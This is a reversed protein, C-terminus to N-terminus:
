LIQFSSITNSKLKNVLLSFLPHIIQKLRTSYMRKSLVVHAWHGFFKRQDLNLTVYTSIFGNPVHQLKCPYFPSEFKRGDLFLHSTSHSVLSQNM